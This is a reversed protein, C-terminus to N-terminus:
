RQLRLAVEEVIRPFHEAELARVKREIDAATDHAEIATRAQFIPAGEDYQENVYHITIGSEKDGAAKVAEHVFHGYMGKGGYNPLLAPHINIIRQPYAHVLYEPVKWLFGALVILDVKMEDMIHLFETSEKFTEKTILLSPVGHNEAVSFAGAGPKNCALLVVRVDSRRKLRELINHANSGGGSALIAIRVM